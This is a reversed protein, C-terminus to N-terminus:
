INEVQFIPTGTFLISGKEEKKLGLVKTYLISTMRVGDLNPEVCGSLFSRVRLHWLYFGKALVSVSLWPFRSRAIVM